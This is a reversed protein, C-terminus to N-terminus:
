GRPELRATAPPRSLMALCPELEDLESPGIVAGGFRAREYGATIRGFPAAYGPAAMRVRHSFERATEDPQPRLGRRALARLARAYFKPIRARSGARHQPLVRRAFMLALAITVAAFAAVAERPIGGLDRIWAIPPRWAIAVQRVRSAAMVQDQLNWNVIYRYWRLRLADLYLNVQGPAAAETVAARPSADLTTWGRDDFYAEVWSHADLLRVMFYRGYPNWEGRQFGNVVRAPIGVTRLLVALSAAFYECNGARSVFLFEEVPPLDTQRELVHTYRFRTSLFTTLREAVEYADRSGATVDRALGRVRPALVPLQLYRLRANEDLRDDRPMRSPRPAGTDVESEVLYQLRAATMAVSVAGASDISVTDARLRLRILRPAAFIMDTGLPELYIEQALLGGAGRPSALVFAGGPPRRMTVRDPDAMTWTRGDFRDFAIGRWRLGPIEDPATQGEPIHVRMVVSADTEIAGFSGLEVRESFGSVLRNVRARIPLAAQGIRPIVFFLTMAIALTAGAATLSLGLLPLGPRELSGAVTAGAAAIRESEVLTHRLIMLWTGITLFGVFVFLFGFGVTVPASAVLMFFCIFGVDRVDRLSTRTFLRYVLLFLLLHVLGDLVSPALYLLDVASAVAAIVGLVTPGLGGPFRLRWHEQWWSLVVAASVLALGPVELLGGVHLAALGDAVLLYTAVRLAGATSLM